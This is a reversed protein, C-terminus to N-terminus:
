RIPPASWRPVTGDGPGPLPDYPLPDDERMGLKEFPAPSLYLWSTGGMEQEGYIHDIYNDPDKRIRERAIKLLDDRKGFSLAETPCAEVCAMCSICKEKDIM